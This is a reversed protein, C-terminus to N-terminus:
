IIQIDIKEGGYVAETFVKSSYKTFRFLQKAIQQGLERTPALILAQVHEKDPDIKALLPLGSAATKGTGTQAQGIFDIKERILVPIAAEQIKTPTVIGLEKLGKEIDKSVGLDAFGMNRMIQPLSVKNPKSRM